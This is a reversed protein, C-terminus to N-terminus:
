TKILHGLTLQYALFDSKVRIWIWVLSRPSRVETRLESIAQTNQATSGAIETLRKNMQSLQEDISTSLEVDSSYIFKGLMKMNELVSPGNLFAPPELPDRDSPPTVHDQVAPERSRLVKARLSLPIM